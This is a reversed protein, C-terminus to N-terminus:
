AAPIYAQRLFATASAVSPQRGSAVLALALLGLLTDELSASLRHDVQFKQCIMQQLPVIKQVLGGSFVLSRWTPTPSLRLACTHYNDTMNQFAARFLHGITLNDEQIHSIQGQYGVSSAFFSLDVRLGTEPTTAVAEAIYPWPDSLQLQQAQALESLLNILVNLSRGAPIRAITNMFRGEFFPRTQYSGPQLHSTLMTVQSATAINLSLEGEELFAGTIACQHDGVPTYCPLPTSGIQIQAVPKGFPHVVPWQLQALNLKTIVEHHWDLTELNLAGHSAANTVEISPRTGSLRALVFDPLAAPIVRESPLRGEEALWFLYCLPLSPKLENGLQRQETLTLRSSLVEFYSGEGSPHPQLVRQDQWTICNSRAEGQETTLVLGHMQSCMVVGACDPALALLEELLLRTAVVVKEPEVEYFLAPLGSVPEPFPQRRIHSLTLRDLDLVAGKIFSTGLDLGIFRMILDEV